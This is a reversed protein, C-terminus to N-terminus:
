SRRKLRREHIHAAVAASAPHDLHENHDSLPVGRLVGVRRWYKVRSIVGGIMPAVEATTLLGRERPRDFRRELRYARRLSQVIRL